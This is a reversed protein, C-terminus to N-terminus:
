YNLFSRQPHRVTETFSLRTDFGFVGSFEISKNLIPFFFEEWFFVCAPSERTASFDFGQEIDLFCLLSISSIKRPFFLFFGSCSFAPRVFSVSVLFGLPFPLSLFLSSSLSPLNVSGGDLGRLLVTSPSAM